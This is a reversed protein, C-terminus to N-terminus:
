KKGEQQQNNKSRRSFINYELYKVKEAGYMYRFSVHVSFGAGENVGKWLCVARDSLDTM